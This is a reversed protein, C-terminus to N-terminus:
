WPPGLSEALLEPSKLSSRCVGWMVLYDPGFMAVSWPGLDESQRHIQSLNAWFEQLRLGHVSRSKWGCQEKIRVEFLLVWVWWQGWLVLLFVHFFLHSCFLGSILSMCSLYPCHSPCLSSSIFLFVPSPTLCFFFFLSVSLLLSLPWPPILVAPKAYGTIDSLTM